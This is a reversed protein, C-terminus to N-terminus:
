NRPPISYTATAHAVLEGGSDRIAIDTVVLRKGLKLITATADLPGPEPKMLFNINLNTTVALAVRGIHALIVAYAALDALMFLTPGSVTGGPRLHKDDAELRVLATGAAVDRVSINDGNSKIQPFVEDLYASVEPASMVPAAAAPM